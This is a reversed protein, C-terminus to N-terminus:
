EVERLTRFLYGEMVDDITAGRPCELVTVDYERFSELAQRTDDIVVYDLGSMLQAEVDDCADISIIEGNPEFHVVVKAEAVDLRAIQAEDYSDSNLGLLMTM